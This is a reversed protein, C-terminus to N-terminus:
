QQGVAANAKNIASLASGAHKTNAEGVDSVVGRIVGMAMGLNNAARAALSVLRHRRLLILIIDEDTQTETETPTGDAACTAELYTAGLEVLPSLTKDEALLRVRRVQEVAAALTDSQRRLQAAYDDALGSVTAQADVAARLTELIGLTAHIASDGKQAESLAGLALRNRHLIRRLEERESALPDPAPARTTLHLGLIQGQEIRDITAQGIQEDGIWLPAETGIAAHVALRLGDAGSVPIQMAGTRNITISTAMFTISGFRVQTGEPAPAAPSEKTDLPRTRGSRTEAAYFVGWCQAARLQHGAQGIEDGLALEAEANARTAKTLDDADEARISRLIDARATALQALHLERQSWPLANHLDSAAQGWASLPGASMTRPRRVALFAALEPLGIKDVPVGFFETLEAAFRPAEQNMLWDYFTRQALTAPGANLAAEAARAFTEPTIGLIKGAREEAAATDTRQIAELMAVTEPSGAPERPPQSGTIVETALVLPMRAWWARSWRYEAALIDGAQRRVELWDAVDERDEDAWARIAEVSLGTVNATTMLASRIGQARRIAENSNAFRGVRWRARQLVTPEPGKKMTAWQEVTARDAFSWRRVVDDPLDVGLNRLKGLLSDVTPVFAPRRGTINLLCHPMQEKWDEAASARTAVWRLVTRRQDTTWAEIAERSPIPQVIVQRLADEVDVILPARGRAGYATTLDGHFWRWSELAAPEEDLWDLCLAGEANRGDALAPPMADAWRFVDVKDEPDWAAIETISPVPRMVALLSVLVDTCTPVMVGGSPAVIAEADGTLFTRIVVPPAPPAESVQLLSAKRTLLQRAWHTADYRESMTWAAVTLLGPAPHMVDALYAACVRPASLDRMEAVLTHEDVTPAETMLAAHHASAWNALSVREEETLMELYGPLTCLNGLPLKDLEALVNAASHELTSLAARVKPPASMRWAAVRLWRMFISDSDDPYSGAWAETALRLALPWQMVEELMPPAGHRGWRPAAGCLARHVVVPDGTVATPAPDNKEPDPFDHVPQSM